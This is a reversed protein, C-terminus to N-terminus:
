RECHFKNDVQYSFVKIQEHYDGESVESLYPSMLDNPDSSHDFDWLGHGLEHALVERTLKSSLNPRISIKVWGPSTETLGLTYSDGESEDLDDDFVVQQIQILRELPICGGDHEVEEMIDLAMVALEPEWQFSPHVM